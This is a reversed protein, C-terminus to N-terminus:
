GYTPVGNLTEHTNGNEVIQVRALYVRDATFGPTAKTIEFVGQANPAADTESFLDVGSGHERFILTCTGATLVVHRGGYELWAIGRWESGATSTFNGDGICTIPRDGLDGFRVVFDVAESVALATSAPATGSFVKSVFRRLAGTNNLTSLDVTTAYGSRDTGDMDAYETMAKYPTATLNVNGDATGSAVAEDVNITTNGGAFASGARITYVGDNGTSGSVRIKRGVVLSGTIDTAVRFAGAGAGGTTVANIAHSTSIAKFVNDAFDLVKGTDDYIRLARGEGAAGDSTFRETSM